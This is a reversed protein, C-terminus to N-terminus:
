RDAELGRVLMAVEKENDGVVMLPEPWDSCYIIAGDLEATWGDAYLEPKAGEAEPFIDDGVYVSVEHGAQDRYVHATLEMGHMWKSRAGILVLDGVQTPLEPAVPNGSMADNQFDALIAEIERPQDGGRMFLPIAVLAIVLTAVGGAAAIKRRSFTPAPDMAQISARVHERLFQPAIEKGSEALARGRRAAEVENWCEECSLMHDEFARRRRPSLRATLYAAARKPDHSL